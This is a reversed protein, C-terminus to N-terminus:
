LRITRTDFVAGEKCILAYKGQEGATSGQVTKEVPCGQCIGIGCAMASELSVECPINFEEALRSLAKLMVNPGCGFIMPRTYSRQKLHMRLLNVVTGHYGESGDDTAVHVNKLHTQINQSRSRAGLFTAIKRTDGIAKTVMPLPAVGLGGGVLLAIDYDHGVGFSCGLPGLIDIMDGAARGILAKTGSGVVNFIIDIRDQDTRYISFPRRLLPQYFQHVRINIFQGPQALRAIEPSHFGM